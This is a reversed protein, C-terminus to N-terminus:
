EATPFGYPILRSYYNRLDPMEKDDSAGGLGQAGAAVAGGGTRHAPFDPYRQLYRKLTSVSVGLANAVAKKGVLWDSLPTDEM